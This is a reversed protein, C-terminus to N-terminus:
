QIGGILANQMAIISEQEAIIGDLANESDAIADANEIAQHAIANIDEALVDDVGDVKDTWTNKLAM